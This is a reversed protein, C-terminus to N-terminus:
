FLTFGLERQFTVKIHAQVRAASSCITLSKKRVEEPNRDPNIRKKIWGDMWRDM